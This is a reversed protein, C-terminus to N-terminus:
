KPEGAAVFGVEINNADTLDLKKNNETIVDSPFDALTTRWENSFSQLHESSKVRFRMTLRAMATQELLFALTDELGANSRQAIDLPTFVQNNTLVALSVGIRKRINSYDLDAFEILRRIVHDSNKMSRIHNGRWLFMVETTSGTLDIRTLIKLDHWRLTIHETTWKLMAVEPSADSPNLQFAEKIYANFDVSDAEEGIDISLRGNGFRSIGKVQSIEKPYETLMSEISSKLLLADVEVDFVSEVFAKCEQAITLYPVRHEVPTHKSQDFGSFRVEVIGLEPKIAVIVAHRFSREKLEQLNPGVQVYGWNRIPQAFRLLLYDNSCQGLYTLHASGDLEFFGKRDPFRQTLKKQFESTKGRQRLAYIYVHRFVQTAELRAILEQLEQDHLSGELKEILESKSRPIDEPSKTFAILLERLQAVQFDQLEPLELKESHLQILEQM